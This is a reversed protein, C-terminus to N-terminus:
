SHLDGILQDFATAFRSDDAVMYHFDLLEDHTLPGLGSDVIREVPQSWMVVQAGSAVLLDLTQRSSEKELSALCDPCTFVYTGDDASDCIRVTVAEVSLEVDGCQECTARVRAM